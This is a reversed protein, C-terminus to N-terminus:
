EEGRGRGHIAAAGCVTWVSAGWWHVWTPPHGRIGGGPHETFELPVGQACGPCIDRCCREREAAVAEAIRVEVSKPSVGMEELERQMAHINDMMSM